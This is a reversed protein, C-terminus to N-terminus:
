QHKLVIRGSYYSAILLFLNCYRQPPWVRSVYKSHSLTQPTNPNTNTNIEFSIRPNMKITHQGIDCM